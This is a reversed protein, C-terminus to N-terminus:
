YKELKKLMLEYLGDNAFNVVLSVKQFSTEPNMYVKKHSKEFILFIM